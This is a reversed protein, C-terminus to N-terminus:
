CKKKHTKLPFRLCYHESYHRVFLKVHDDHYENPQVHEGHGQIVVVLTGHPAEGQVIEVHAENHNKTSLTNKLDKCQSLIVELFM